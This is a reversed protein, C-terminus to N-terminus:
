WRRLLRKITQVKQPLPKGAFRLLRNVSDVGGIGSTGDWPRIAMNPEPVPTLLASHLDAHSAALLTRVKRWGLGARYDPHDPMKKFRYVFAFGARYLMKVLCAETPYFAFHSLGQDETLGEDVLGMIPTEGPFIVAEVLLLQRTMVHLHRITLLPNQLHYLLGFCFVLDFTGLQRLGPDEADCTEFRVQPFRRRAEEVNEQRGDVATIEFGLNRLLGAFYGVGCGIDIATRLGLKEKLESLLRKVVEARSSNLSEYLKQDFVHPPNLLRRWM